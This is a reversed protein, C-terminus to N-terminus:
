NRRYEIGQDGLSVGNKEIEDNTTGDPVKVADDIEPHNSTSSASDIYGSLYVTGNGKSFCQFEEHNDFKLNLPVFPNQKSLCAFLHETAGNKLWLQM